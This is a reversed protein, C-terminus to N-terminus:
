TSRDLRVSFPVPTPKVTVGDLNEQISNQVYEIVKKSSDDDSALLDFELSDVGLEKKAKEWYEKAKDKDYSVLKGAEKAFDENTTPSKVM